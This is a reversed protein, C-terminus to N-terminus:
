VKPLEVFFTTGKGVETEFYIRGNAAEVINKSMALGLGMGSNKTTFSPQFVRERKDESIGNGNDIIKVVAQHEKDELVVYIDGHRDEPISQIANKILNNL